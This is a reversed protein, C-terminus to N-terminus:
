CIFPNDGVDCNEGDPPAPLARVHPAPMAIRGDIYRSTHAARSNAEAAVHRETVYKDHAMAPTALMAAAIVGASFFKFAAM